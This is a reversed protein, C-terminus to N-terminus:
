QDIKYATIKNDIMMPVIALKDNEVFELDASGQNLDTLQDAKGDPHLRYLAGKVWDTVLWNGAGDSGLGDLNGVPSGNGVNSIAVCM